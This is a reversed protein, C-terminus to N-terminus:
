KEEKKEFDNCKRKYMYEFISTHYLRPRHDRHCSKESIMYEAYTTFHKCVHCDQAKAKMSQGGEM